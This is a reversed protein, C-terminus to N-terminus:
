DTEGEVLRRHAKEVAELIGEALKVRYGEQMLLGREKPNSLYGLSLDAAPIELQMLLSDSEAAEVGLARGSAATTVERTLLDALEANTFEPIFYEENYRGTIGYAEPDDETYAVRLGIYVDAHVKEMLALKEEASLTRGGTRTMYIRVGELGLREHVLRAVSLTVDEAASYDGEVSNSDEMSNEGGMPMNVGMPIDMGIPDLLVACDHLQGPEYCAVVLRDGELTSRYEMLRQIQLRLLVGDEYAEYSGERIVSVEGTLPRRDYFNVDEMQIYLWLEDELYRNDMAVNEPRIGRPLPIYIHGEADPTQEVKLPYREVAGAGSVNPLEAPIEAIVITKTAAFMLMVALACLCLAAWVWYAPAIGKKKPLNLKNM